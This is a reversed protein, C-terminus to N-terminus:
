KLYVTTVLIHRVFIDDLWEDHFGLCSIRIYPNELQKKWKEKLYDLHLQYDDSVYYVIKEEETYKDEVYMILKQEANKDIYENLAKDSKFDKNFSSM